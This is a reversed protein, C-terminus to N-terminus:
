SKWFAADRKMREVKRQALVGFEDWSVFRDHPCLRACVLYTTTLVTTCVFYEYRCGGSFNVWSACNPLLFFQKSAHWWRITRGYSITGVCLMKMGNQRKASAVTSFYSRSGAVNRESMKRHTTSHWKKFVAEKLCRHTCSLSIVVVVVVYTWAVKQSTRQKELPVMAVTMNTKLESDVGNQM